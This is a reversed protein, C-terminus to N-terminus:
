LTTHTMRRSLEHALLLADITTYGQRRLENKLHTVAENEAEEPTKGYKKYYAIAAIRKAADMCSEGERPSIKGEKCQQYLSDRMAIYEAPM